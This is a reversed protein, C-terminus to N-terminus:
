VESAMGEEKKRRGRRGGGSPLRVLEDGMERGHCRRWWQVFFGDESM